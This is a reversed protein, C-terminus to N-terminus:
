RIKWMWQLVFSLACSLAVPLCVTQQRWVLRSYGCTIRSYGIKASPRWVPWKTQCWGLTRIPMGKQKMRCPLLKTAGIAFAVRHVGWPVWCSAGNRCRFTCLFHIIQQVGPWYTFLTNYSDTTQVVHSLTPFVLCIRPTPYSISKFSAQYKSVFTPIDYLYLTM